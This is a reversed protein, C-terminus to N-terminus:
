CAAKAKQEAPSQHERRHARSSPALHVSPNRNEPKQLATLLPTETTIVVGTTALDDDRLFTLYESREARGGGGGSHGQGVCDFTVTVICRMTAQGSALREEM